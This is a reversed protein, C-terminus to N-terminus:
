TAQAFRGPTARGADLLIVRGNESSWDALQELGLADRYFAVAEEFDSVTLAVRLATVHGLSMHSHAPVPRGPRLDDKGSPRRRRPAGRDDGDLLDIGRRPSRPLPGGCGRRPLHR